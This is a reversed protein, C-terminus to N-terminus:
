ARAFGNTGRFVPQRTLMGINNVDTGAVWKGGVRVWGNANVSHPREALTSVPEPLGMQKCAIEALDKDIIVTLKSTYPPPLERGTDVYKDASSTKFVPKEKAKANDRRIKDADARKFRNIYNYVYLYELGLKKSIMGTSKGEASMEKISKKDTDSLKPTM